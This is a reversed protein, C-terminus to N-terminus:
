TAAIGKPSDHVRVVAADSPENTNTNGTMVMSDYQEYVWRKSAITPLQILQFATDKLDAPVPVADANFQKIQEFYKPETYEREYVPAGGGLVMSEAPVDAILEGNMYYKLNKDETVEGIE